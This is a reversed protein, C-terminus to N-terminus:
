KKQWEVFLIEGLHYIGLQRAANGQCIAFEVLGSSGVYAVEKGKEVYGFSKKFPFFYKKNNFSVLLTGQPTGEYSLNTILNGFHDIYIVKAKQKEQLPKFPLQAKPLPIMQKEVPQELAIAAALPAFIDRGHFTNSINELAVSHPNVKYLTVKPAYLAIIWDLVGNDPAIFHYDPTQLYLIARQTGVGPDVVTLFVSNQPFYRHHAWLLYRAADISQPPVEHSLDVIPIQIGKSYLVGKMTGVYGDKNGFDTLLVLTKM